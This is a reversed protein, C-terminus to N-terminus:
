KLRNKGGKMSIAWSPNSKGAMQKRIEDAARKAAKNVTDRLNAM